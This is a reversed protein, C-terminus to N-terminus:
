QVIRALSLMERWSRLHRYVVGTSPWHPYEREWKSALSAPAGAALARPQPGWDYYSPPAGTERAWAQCREIVREPNWTDPYVYWRQRPPSDPRGAQPRGRRTRAADPSRDPAVARASDKM